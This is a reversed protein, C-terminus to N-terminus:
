VQLLPTELPTANIGVADAVQITVPVSPFPHEFEVLLAIVTFESGVTVAFAVAVTIQLPADTVSVPPPALEYVHVLPTLSPTANIGVVVAVYVTVPVSPLPQVFVADFVIVKFGKGAMVILAVDVTTHAPIFTVSLPLPAFV